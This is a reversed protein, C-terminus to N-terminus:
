VLFWFDWLRPIKMKVNQSGDVTKFLRFRMALCTLLWRM